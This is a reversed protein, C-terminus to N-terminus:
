YVPLGGFRARESRKASLISIIRTKGIEYAHELSCIFGDTPYYHAAGSDSIWLVRRLHVGQHKVPMLGTAVMKAM